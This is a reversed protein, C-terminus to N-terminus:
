LAVMAWCDLHLRIKIDIIPTTRKIDDILIHEEWEVISNHCRECDHVNCSKAKKIKM